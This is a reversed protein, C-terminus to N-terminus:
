KSIEGLNFMITSSPNEHKCRPDRYGLIKYSIERLILAYFSNKEPSIILYPILILAFVMVM